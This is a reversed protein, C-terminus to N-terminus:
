GKAISFRRYTSERKYKKAIEPHDQELSKIDFRTSKVNKWIVSYSGAYGRENEGLWYKLQNEIQKVEEEHIKLNEKAKRYRDILAISERPLKIESQEEAYSFQEKLFQESAKSGDMPPVENREVYGWFEKCHKELEKILIDDREIRRYDIHTNGILTVIYGFELGFCNLNHQMKLVEAIPTNENRWDRINFPNVLKLALLGKKEFETVYGLTTGILYPISPHSVIEEKIEVILGSIMSFKKLVPYKFLDYLSEPEEEKAEGVTKDLYVQMRARNSSLNLIAIADHCGIGKSHKTL